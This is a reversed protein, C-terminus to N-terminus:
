QWEEGLNIYINDGIVESKFYIKMKWVKHCTNNQNLYVFNENKTKKKQFFQNFWTKFKQFRGLTWLIGMLNWTCMKDFNQSAFFNYEM